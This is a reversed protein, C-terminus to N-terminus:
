LKYIMYCVDFPLHSFQKTEGEIFGLKAYWKKLELHTAIIGISIEKTHCSKAYTIIHRVLCEGYGRCRYEPLVSLRNLYAVAASAQEYAVCAVSQGQDQYIFFKTGRSFDSLVWERTYFSPHKPNNDRNLNFKEAVDKNSASVINAILEADRTHAEIINM